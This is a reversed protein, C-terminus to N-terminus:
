AKRALFVKLDEGRGAATSRMSARLRRMFSPRVELGFDPDTFAERFVRIVERRVASHKNVKKHELVKTM